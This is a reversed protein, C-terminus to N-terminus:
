IRSDARNIASIWLGHAKLPWIRQDASRNVGRQYPSVAQDVSFRYVSVDLSGMSRIRWQVSFHKNKHWVM